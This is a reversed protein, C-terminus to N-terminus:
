EKNLQNELDILMDRIQAAREYEKAKAAKQMEKRLINVAKIRSKQNNEKHFYAEIVKVEDSASIDDRIPKIITKPTIGHEKNYQEQLSRRRATENIAKEMAPTIKDGYMIVRGNQNRAARGITQILTTENRFLGPKDADLIAVLSVEPCDLGEKLLNIGIIADFKGRRLDNLIRNRELTKLEDHIYAVKFNQDNLFKTLEEATRKTLVTIFTRENKKVQQNLNVVLDDIQNKLPHVEIIPDLLGTPRILQEIVEGGAEQVEYNNPTASVYIINKIKENFEAFNLPRNDKASPLRFGYEILTEKRSRDTNHMGRIQPISIHSEDVVMLWEDKKLYDFITYPTSGEKRMELHSSYNEIGSCYGIELLQEMDHNTRTEIRQAEILMGQSKFYEV